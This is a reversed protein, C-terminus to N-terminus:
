NLYREKLINIHHVEHGIITKLFDELNVDYPGAKGGLKLQNESLSAVFSASAERVNKYDTLLDQFPIEDFRSNDVLTNQNYGWLEVEQKRSLLFARFMKIREHDTIHGLVQKISWKDRAYRYKAKEENISSLFALSTESSYLSGCDMQKVFELYYPFGDKPTYSM